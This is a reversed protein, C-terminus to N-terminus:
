LLFDIKFCFGKKDQNELSFTGNLTKIRTIINHLGLGKSKKDNITKEFDFGKGNDKYHITLKKGISLLVIDINNANAHKITNHILEILIRYISIENDQSIKHNFQGASFNIKLEKSTQINACFSELAPILGFRKIIGPSLNNAINKASQITKDILENTFEIMDKKKGQEIQDNNLTNIYIKITSLLAGLEDHLDESFRKREREETEIIVNMIHKEMNRSETIDRKSAVVRIVKNDKFVPILKIEFDTPHDNLNIKEEWNVEKGTKFVKKIESILRKNFFYSAQNIKKGIIDHEFNMEQNMKKVVDNILLITLNKDIVIIPDNISNITSYYLSESYILKDEAIKSETIDAIYGELAVPNGKEDYIIKGIDLFWKVDGKKTKAKYSLEFGSNTRIADNIHKEYYKLEGNLIFSKLSNKKNKIIEHSLYGTIEYVRDSVYVITGNSDNLCRYVMGPLNSILTSLQRNTEKMNKEAIEVVERERRTKILLSAKDVALSLRDVFGLVKPVYDIAGSTISTVANEISYDATLFIVPTENNKKKLENLLTIGDVEPLHYDLLIIDIPYGDSQILNLAERGNDIVKLKYQDSNFIEKILNIHIQDDEILLLNIIDSQKM